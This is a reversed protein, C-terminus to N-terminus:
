SLLDPQVQNILSEATKVAAQWLPEYKLNTWEIHKHGHLRILRAHSLPGSNWYLSNLVPDIQELDNCLLVLDCGAQLAMKARQTLDGYVVAAQMGLDDSIIAGEFHCRGRLITQLWKESFGVPLDDVVPYRVHAPMVAELGHAMLKLFPQLDAAEIQSWTREDVAIEQHTDAQVFGHGPFHKAISAMGAERMGFSLQLGLKGVVQADAAFARDGIVRSEGYDLDLVPAFSFDVGCALLETALVWGLQRAQKLAAEPRHQYIEGLARMPPIRTFGERFRQVRGGEHDVGILLKPHRLSHIHDCLASLQQPSHYNRSFLIVGAVMPHMLQEVEHETLEHGAIGIMLSGLSMAKGSLIKQM